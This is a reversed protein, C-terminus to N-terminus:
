RRVTLNCVSYSVPHGLQHFVWVLMATTTTKGHTGAVALLQLNKEKIFEALFEDRKSARIGNERAFALEPADDALAGTYIFWDIPKEAHYRALNEATQEYFIKVGRQELEDTQLTHQLESGAVSFGADLAIEALPGLGAGGIGSIFINM